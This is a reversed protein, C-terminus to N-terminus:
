IEEVVRAIVALSRELDKVPADETISIAFGAKGGAQDILERTHKEVNAPSEILVSSTYNIWLVKQKWAKRAEAISVDGVPPPTFAEIIDVDTEAIQPVLSALRGDMHVALKKDSGSLSIKLKRYEPMLYNQFREIGVVDATINDGLLIIEVPSDAAISYLEAYRETMASHLSDFLDRREFFDIAFREHGMMQYLMEQIPSKAVRVYVLGDDGIRRIAENLFDYNSHYYPDRIAFEMIPYDDPQKIFHERIWYSSKYSSRDPVLTQYLEGVPTRITKRVLREGNEWYEKTVHDVDRHEETHAPPRLILGWGQRRLSRAHEGRPLIKEYITLPVRDPEEWFLSALVREKITM